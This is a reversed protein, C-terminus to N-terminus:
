LGMYADCAWSEITNVCDANPDCGDYFLDPRSCADLDKCTVCNGFYGTLCFCLYSGDTEQCIANVDCKNSDNECNPLDICNGRAGSPSYFGDACICWSDDPGRGCIEKGPVCSECPAVEKDLDKTPPSLEKDVEPVALSVDLWCFEVVVGDTHLCM